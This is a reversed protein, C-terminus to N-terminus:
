PSAAAPQEDGGHGVVGELAEAVAVLERNVEPIVTLPRARAAITGVAGDIRELRAEVQALLVVVRVLYYALGAVLVGALVLTVIAAAPM